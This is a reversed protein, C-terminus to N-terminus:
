LVFDSAHLGGSATTNVVMALDTASNFTGPTAEVYLTNSTGATFIALHSPDTHLASLDIKDTGLKFGVITDYGTVLNSDGYATYVFTDQGSGAYLSDAGGGGTIRDTGNDAQIVDGQASGIVNPVNVISDEFTGSGTWNTGSSVYADHGNLLDVFVGHSAGAFSLMNNTYGPVGTMKSAGGWIQNYGGNSDGAMFTTFAGNGYLANIGGGGDLTTVAANDAATQTSNAYFVDNGAGGVVSGGTQGAIVTCGNPGGSITGTITGFTSNLIQGPGSGLSVNGVIRGSNYVSSNAASDLEIGGDISGVNVLQEVAGGGFGDFALTNGPGNSPIGSLTGANYFYVTESATGFNDFYGGSITGYNRVEGPGQTHIATAGPGTTSIAGYNDIYHVSNGSNSVFIAGNEGIITGTPENVVTDIGGLNDSVEVATNGSFIQGSNNVSLGTLGNAYVAFYNVGALDVNPAVALSDFNAAFTFTPTNNVSSITNSTVYTTTM